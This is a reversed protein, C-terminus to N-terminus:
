TSCPLSSLVHFHHLIVVCHWRPVVISPTDVFMFLWGGGEGEFLSLVVVVTVLAVCWPARFSILTCWWWWGSVARHPGSGGDVFLAVLVWGRWGCFIVLAWCWLCCVLAGCWWGSIAVFAWCVVVSSRCCPGWVVLWSHCRLGWLVLWLPGADGVM